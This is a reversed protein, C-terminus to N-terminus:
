FSRYHTWLRQDDGYKEVVLLGCQTYDNEMFASSYIDFPNRWLAKLFKGIRRMRREPESSFQNVIKYRRNRLIFAVAKRISPLWLDHFAIYCGKRILKDAYYFDLMVADFVHYGDIFVLDFKEGESVLRPLVAHSPEEHFRVMDGFGAKEVNLIGVSKWETTQVPDMVVHVGGGNDRLAQCMFLTSLGYAMGIELTRRARTERIMRYLLTGDHYPVGATFPDIERGESDECRKTRYIQEIVENM